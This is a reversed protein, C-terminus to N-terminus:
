ADGSPRGRGAGSGHRTPSRRAIRLRLESSCAAALDTLLALENGTWRRPERDAACLVGLTRGDADTLPVGAFAVIGPSEGGTETVAVPRGSEVVLRTPLATLPMTRSTAWPEPLGVQGALIQHEADVVAVLAVPAGLLHEVLAAFRDFADDPAAPLSLRRVARLRQPDATVSVATPDAM